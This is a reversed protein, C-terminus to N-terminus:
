SVQQSQEFKEFHELLRLCSLKVFSNPKKVASICHGEYTVRGNQTLNQLYTKIISTLVVANWLPM